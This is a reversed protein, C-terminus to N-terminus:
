PKEGKEIDLAKDIIEQKAILMKVMNIDMSGDLVLHEIFVSEQQGIRHVRDEAQSVNGPVWDLEAFIVHSSATLTLGVGAAKISGVFVRYKGAQFGDVANQRDFQSSKGTLQVASIGADALGEMIGDIVDHHHAFIVLQEDSGSLVERIYELAAPIKAVAMDHRLKSMQEIAVRRHETLQKVAEKYNNDEASAANVARALERERAQHQEHLAHQEAVLVAASSLSLERIVRRKPPLESLVEKKLRRVMFSARLKYQLEELNRAGSVDWGYASKFAAAYRVHFRHWSDGLGHPDLLKVLTWLEAPRNCIPTGTLFLRRRAAIKIVAKTRQAAPNKIYHCEDV